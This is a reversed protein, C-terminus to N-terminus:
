FRKQDPSLQGGENLTVGITYLMFDKNNCYELAGVFKDCKDVLYKHFIM